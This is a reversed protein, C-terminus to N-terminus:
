ICDFLLKLYMLRKKDLSPRLCIVSLVKLFSKVKRHLLLMILFVKNLSPSPFQEYIILYLTLLKFLSRLALCSIISYSAFLIDVNVFSVCFLYKLFLPTLIKLDLFAVFINTM